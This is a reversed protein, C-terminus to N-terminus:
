CDYDNWWKQDPPIGEIKKAKTEIFLDIFKYM